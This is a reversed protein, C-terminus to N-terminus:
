KILVVVNIEILKYVAIARFFGKLKQRGGIKGDGLDYSLASKLADSIKIKDKLLDRSFTGAFYSFLRLFICAM